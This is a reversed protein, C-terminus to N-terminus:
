RELLLRSSVTLVQAVKQTSAESMTYSEEVIDAQENLLRGVIEETSVINNEKVYHYIDNLQFMKNQVEAMNDIEPFLDNEFFQKLHNLEQDEGPAM